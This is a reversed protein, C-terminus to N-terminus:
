QGVVPQVKAPDPAPAAPAPQPAAPAAESKAAPAEGVRFIRAKRVGGSKEPDVKGLVVELVLLEVADGVAQQGGDGAAAIGLLRLGPHLEEDRMHDLVEVVFLGNEGPDAIRVQGGMGPLVGAEDGLGLEELLLHAAHAGVQGGDEAEQGQIQHLPADEGPVLHEEPVQGM